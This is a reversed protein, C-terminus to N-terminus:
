TWKQVVTNNLSNVVEKGLGLSYFFLDHRKLSRNEKKIAKYENLVRFLSFCRSKM